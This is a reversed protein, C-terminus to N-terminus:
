RSACFHQCFYNFFPDPAAAPPPNTTPSIFVWLRFHMAFVVVDLTELFLTRIPDSRIPLIETFPVVRPYTASRPFSLSFPSRDQNWWQTPAVFAVGIESRQVRQAPYRRDVPIPSRSRLVNLETACRVDVRNTSSQGLASHLRFWRVCVVSVSALYNRALYGFNLSVCM